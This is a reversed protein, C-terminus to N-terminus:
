FLILILVLIITLFLSKIEYGSKNFEPDTRDESFCRSEMALALNDATQFTKKLVPLILRAIKKVPNKQNDACRAKQADSVQKSLEIILPLFRISLGIMLSARKEPIFPVPKLFWEAASKISSPKTTHSFIMGLLMIILFRISVLAGDKIGYSSVSVGFISFLPEGPTTFARSLFIFFLLILFYKLHNLSNLPKIGINLMATILIISILALAPFLAKLIGISILCMMVLKYRTDLNHFISNGTKYIFPTM